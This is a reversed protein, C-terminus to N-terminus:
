SDFRKIIVSSNHGGFGFTNSLIANVEREQAENFTLNLKTDIAPDDTFHNITPPIFNHQIALIGAVAEIAGAAGLLHGTMSKTSSINFRYAHEGFVKLIAKTEAVDGLPTSTGHVNVYDIDEPNMKADNLAMKMVNRAGLGEPHPATIHHADATAGAGVIEALINAGRKKAHEYEELIIGASGEGLVFGDRDLDFPRSATKYDDNRTSLAKMANFGGMGAHTVTAESGGSVIVDCRGLRIYDFANSMAHSSSACASVTAYNVGRFGYRISIHGAAIDSIMKPIMFPNYRPIGNGAAFAEIERELSYLGGIGSGWIVGVRDLDLQEVDLGSMQMAEEVAVLAYITFPDLRRAQRRELHDEASFDKIECAFKTKFHEPDFHTILNAGSVGEQLGKLYQEVGNGIPTLAGIGTIVVRRM